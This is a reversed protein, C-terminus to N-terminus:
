DLAMSSCNLDHFAHYFFNHLFFREEYPYSFRKFFFISRSKVTEAAALAKVSCDRRHVASIIIGQKIAVDPDPRLM